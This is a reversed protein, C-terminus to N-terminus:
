PLSNAFFFVAPQAHVLTVHLRFFRQLCFMVVVFFRYVPALRRLFAFNAARLVPSSLEVTKGFGGSYDIGRFGPPICIARASCSGFHSLLSFISRFPSIESLRSFGSIGM